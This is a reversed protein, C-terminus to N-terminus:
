ARALRQRLVMLYLLVFGYFFLEQVESARHFLYWTPDIWQALRESLRTSEALLATPMCLAPPLIIAFRSRRIAPKWIALLPVAIGGVIIGLELLTRPKQDLWSSINHLNTEGQDNLARWAEPTLWGIYHQGWSAEEGAVYFCGLVALAIWSFLWPQSRLSLSRLASLAVAIAVLLLVIQLSEVVGLEDGM